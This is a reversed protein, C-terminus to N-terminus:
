TQITIKRNKVTKISKSLLTITTPHTKVNIYIYLFLKLFIFNCLRTIIYLQLPTIKNHM